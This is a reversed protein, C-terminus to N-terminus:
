IETVLQDLLSKHANADIERRLIKEAGAVALAAVKGRLEERAKHAQAEIDAAAIAKQKTAEVIADQRAKDIIQAAQQQAKDVISTAEVRAKKIEEAVRADADALEKRAKDAQSLGEAIRNQREEIAGIIHPWGFKMVLWVVAFFALGQVVLTLNPNM